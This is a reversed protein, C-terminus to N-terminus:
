LRAPDNERVTTGVEDEEHTLAMLSSMVDLAEDVFGERGLQVALSAVKEPLYLLFKSQVWLKVAPLLKVALAAPMALAADLFDEQVLVNDTNPIRLIVGLVEDGAIKAMRALYRSEPWPPFRLPGTPDDRILAPPKLFFGKASLPAIWRPNELRDFFYRYQEAHSLLAVASAVEEPTPKKWSKM